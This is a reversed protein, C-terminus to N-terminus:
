IKVRQMFLDNDLQAEKAGKSRALVPTHARVANNAAVVSVDTRVWLLHNLMVLVIFVAYWAVGLQPALIAIGGWIMSTRLLLRGIALISYYGMAQPDLVPRHVTIETHGM